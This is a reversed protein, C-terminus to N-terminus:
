SPEGIKIVSGSAKGHADVVLMEVPLSTQNDVTLTSRITIVKINNELVIDCMLQYGVKDIRPRLNLVHEGERDVSVGRM